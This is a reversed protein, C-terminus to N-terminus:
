LDGCGFLLLVGIEFPQPVTKSINHLGGLM